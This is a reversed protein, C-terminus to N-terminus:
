AFLSASRLTHRRGDAIFWATVGRAVARTKSPVYIRLLIGSALRQSAHVSCILLKYERLTPWWASLIGITSNNWAMHPPSWTQFAWTKSPGEVPDYNFTATLPLTDAELTELAALNDAYGRPLRIAALGSQQKTEAHFFLTSNDRAVRPAYCLVPGTNDPSPLPVPTGGETSIAYLHGNSAFFIVRSDPSFAFTGGGALASTLGREM